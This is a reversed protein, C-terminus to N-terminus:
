ETDSDGVREVHTERYEHMWRHGWPLRRASTAISRGDRALVNPILATLTKDLTGIDDESLRLVALFIERDWRFYGFDLQIRANPTLEIANGRRRGRDVLDKYELADLAESVTASTCGLADALQHVRLPGQQEITFVIQAQTPTLRFDYTRSWAHSRLSLALLQFCRTVNRANEFAIASPM